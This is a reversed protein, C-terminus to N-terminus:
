SMTVERYVNETIRKLISAVSVEDVSSSAAPATGVIV